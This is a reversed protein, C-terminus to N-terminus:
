FTKSSVWIAGLVLFAPIILAICLHLVIDFPARSWAPKLDAAKGSVGRSKLADMLRAARVAVRRNRASRLDRAIVYALDGNGCSAFAAANQWLLTERTGPPEYGGFANRLIEAVSYFPGAPFGWWGALGSILSARLSTLRACRACYIGQLAAHRVSVLLGVVYRYVIYRPQATVKGCRSCVVPVPTGSPADPLEHTANQANNYAARAQPDSLV